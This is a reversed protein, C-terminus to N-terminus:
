VRRGARLGSRVRPVEEIYRAFFPVVPPAAPRPESAVVAAAKAETAEARM